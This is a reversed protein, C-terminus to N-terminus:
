FGDKNRYGGNTSCPGEMENGKIGGVLVNRYAICIM